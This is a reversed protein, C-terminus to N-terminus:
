SRGRQVAPREVPLPLEQGRAPDAHVGAVRAAGLPVALCEQCRVHPVPAVSRHVVHHRAEVRESRVPEHVRVPHADGAARVAAVERRPDHAVGIPELRRDGTTGHVVHDALHQRAVDATRGEAEELVADMGPLVPVQVPAVRREGVGIPHRGREEDLMRLLVQAARDGLGLLQERDEARQLARDPEHADRVLRVLQGTRPRWEPAHVVDPEDGLPEPVEQDLALSPQWPDVRLASLARTSTSPIYRIYAGIVWRLTRISPAMGVSKSSARFAPYPKSPGPMVKPAAIRSSSVNGPRWTRTGSAIIFRWPSTAPAVPVPLVFVSWTSASCSESAPTGTKMLSMLPSMLPSAAGATSFSFSVARAADM